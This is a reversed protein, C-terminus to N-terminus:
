NGGAEHAMAALSTVGVAPTGTALSLARAAAVGVRVGTFSGPGHDRCDDIDGFALGPAARGRGDDADAARRTGVHAGTTEAM